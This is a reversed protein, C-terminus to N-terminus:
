IPEKSNDIVKPPPLHHKELLECYKNYHEKQLKKLKQELEAREQYSKAKNMESYIANREIQAMQMFQALEKEYTM